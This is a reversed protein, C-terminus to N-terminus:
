AFALYIITDKFVVAFYLLWHNEIFWSELRFRKTFQSFDFTVYTDTYIM